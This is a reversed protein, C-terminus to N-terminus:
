AEGAMRLLRHLDDLLGQPEFGPRYRLVLNGQPDLLYVSGAPLPWQKAAVVHLDSSDPVAGSADASPLLLVRQVRRMAKGQALRVRDLTDLMARCEDECSGTNRYFLTWHGRFLTEDVVTGHRDTMAPPVFRQVPLLLEGNQLSGHPHWDPQQYITWALLLPVLFVMTLATPVLYAKPTRVDM